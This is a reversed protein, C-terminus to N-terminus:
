KDRREDKYKSVPRKNKEKAEGKYKPITVKYASYKVDNVEKKHEQSSVASHHLLNHKEKETFMVISKILRKIINKTERKIIEEYPLDTM